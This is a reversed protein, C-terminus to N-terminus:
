LATCLQAICYALLMWRSEIAPTSAGLAVLKGNEEQGEEVYPISHISSSSSARLMDRCGEGAMCVKACKLTVTAQIGVEWKRLQEFKCPQRSDCTVFIRLTLDQTGAALCSKIFWVLVAQSQHDITTECM